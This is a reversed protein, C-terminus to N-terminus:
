EPLLEITGPELTEITQVGEVEAPETLPTMVYHRRRTDTIPVPILEMILDMPMLLWPPTRFREITELREYGPKELAIDYYWYWNIPITIPTAGYPQGRWIVEAGSPESDIKVRSRICGASMCSLTTMTLLLLLLTTRRTPKMAMEIM